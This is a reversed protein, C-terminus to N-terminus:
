YLVPNRGRSIGVRPFTRSRLKMEGFGDESELRKSCPVEENGKSGTSRFWKFLKSLLEEREGEEGNELGLAESASSDSSARRKKFPALRRLSYSVSRAADKFGKKKQETTMMSATEEAGRAEGLLAVLEKPNLQAECIRAILQEGEQSLQGDQYAQKVFSTWDQVLAKVVEAEKEFWKTHRGQCRNCRVLDVNWERLRVNVITEVRRAGAFFDESEWYVETDQAACNGSDRRRAGSSRETFGIRVLRENVAHRWVYVRGEGYDRATFASEIARLLPWKGRDVQSFRRRITGLVEPGRDGHGLEALVDELEPDDYDDDGPTTSAAANNHASTVSTTYVGTNRPTPAPTELQPPASAGDSGSRPELQQTQAHSHSKEPFLTAGPSSLATSAPSAESLTAGSNRRRPFTATSVPSVSILDEQDGSYVSEESLNDTSLEAEPLSLEAGGQYAAFNNDTARAVKSVDLSRMRAWSEFNELAGDAHNAPGHCHVLSLFQRVEEYFAQDHPIEDHAAFAKMLKNATERGVRNSAMKGCQPGDGRKTRGLCRFIEGNGFPDEQATVLLSKIEDLVPSSM